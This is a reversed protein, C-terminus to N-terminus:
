FLMQLLFNDGFSDIVIVAAVWIAPALILWKVRNKRVTEMEERCQEPVFPPPINPFVGTVRIRKIRRVGSVVGCAAFVFILLTYIVMVSLAARNGESLSEVAAASINGGDPVNAIRTIILLITSIANISAHIAYTTLIGKSLVAVYGLMIGVAFAYFFQQFNGHALGFFVSSLVIAFGRGFPFLVRLFIGRFLIEEFLPGAIVTYVFLMAINFPSDMNFSDFVSDAKFEGTTIKSIISRGIVTVINVAFSVGYVAPLLWYLKEFNAPKRLMVGASLPGIFRRYIRVAAAIPIIYIFLCQLATEIFCRLEGSLAGGSISRVAAM